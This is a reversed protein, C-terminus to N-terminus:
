EKVGSKSRPQPQRVRDKKRRKNTTKGPVGKQSFRRRKRLVRFATNKRKKEPGRVLIGRGQERRHGGKEKGGRFTKGPARGLRDCSTEETSCPADGKQLIELVPKDLELPEIKESPSRKEVRGGM